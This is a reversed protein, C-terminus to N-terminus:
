LGAVSATNVIAGGGQKLMHALEHKMCLWVGKVNVAMTKDFSDDPCEHLAQNEIEIGANNFACDLRGFVEVTKAVMAQVETPQTVDARIFIAAGTGKFASQTEILALTERGAKANVDVVAVRAGSRAFALATARGIGSGAGTVM